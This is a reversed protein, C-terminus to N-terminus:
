DRGCAKALYLHWGPYNAATTIPSEVGAATHRYCNMGKKDSTGTNDKAMAAGANATYFSFGVCANGDYVCAQACAAADPQDSPPAAYGSDGNFQYRGKRGVAPEGFGSM